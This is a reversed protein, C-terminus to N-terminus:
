KSQTKNKAKKDLLKRIGITIAICLPLFPTAPALWFAWCASGIGLFWANGTIFYLLYMIWVESSLIVTVIAFIILNKKDKLQEFIWKFLNKIKKM